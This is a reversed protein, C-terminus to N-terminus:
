PSKSAPSETAIQIDYIEIEQVLRVWVTDKDPPVPLETKKSVEWIHKEKNNFKM